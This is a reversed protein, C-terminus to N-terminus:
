DTSSLHEAHSTLALFRPFTRTLHQRFKFRRVSCLAEQALSALFLNQLMHGAGFQLCLSAKHMEAREIERGCLSRGNSTVITCFFGFRSM